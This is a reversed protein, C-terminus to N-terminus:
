AGILKPLGWWALLGLLGVGGAVKVFGTGGSASPAPAPAKVSPVGDVLDSWDGQPVARGSGPFLFGGAIQAQQVLPSASAVIVGLALVDDPNKPDLKGRELADAWAQMTAADNLGTVALKRQLIKELGTQLIATSQRADAEVIPVHGFTCRFWTVIPASSRTSTVPTVLANATAGSYDLVPKDVARDSQTTVRFGIPNPLTAGQRDIIHVAAVLLAASTLQASAEAYFKVLQRYHNAADTTAPAPPWQALAGALGASWWDRAGKVPQVLDAISTPPDDVGLQRLEVWWAIWQSALQTQFYEWPLRLANTATCADPNDDCPDSGGFINAIGEVIDKGLDYCIGGLQGGVWACVPSAAAAGLAACAASGAASGAAGAYARLDADSTGFGRKLAEAEAAAAPDTETSQNALDGASPLSFAM